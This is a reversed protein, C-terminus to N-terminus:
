FWVRFTKIEYPAISFILRAGEVQVPMEGEEVLNCEVARTIQRAFLLETRPHRSHQAEYVRVIWGDGDEAQKVTEVIVEHSRSSSVLTYEGPLTGAANAPIVLAHLPHNLNYAEHVVESEELASMHPLLAYTFHHLTKDALPDPMTASKILTLRMVNDKIDYGYKSENLLAVGYNSESLDAWKQAPVEFRAYDWSTNWHTPREISGFQINYTARNARVNVPFAVKLLVDQEKWDVETRFDIRRSFNYLSIRQTITSDYFQWVLRLTGRVPGTEEVVAEVLHDVEQM